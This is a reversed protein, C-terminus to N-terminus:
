KAPQAPTTSQASRAERAKELNAKRREKEVFNTFAKAVVYLEDNTAKPNKTMSFLDERAGQSELQAIQAQLREIEQERATKAKQITSM